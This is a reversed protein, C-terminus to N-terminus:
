HCKAVVKDGDTEIAPSVYPIGLNSGRLILLIGFALLTVPVLKRFRTRIANSMFRGLYPLGFMVPLTGIGFLVMYLAGHWHSGVVVAGAAAMYVLGCPLLGNFLGIVFVSGFTGKAFQKQFLGKMKVLAGFLPKQIIDMKKVWWPVLVALVILSGLIISFYQQFGMLNITSGLLGFVAGIVGYILIRGANYTLVGLIRKGESTGVSPVALAIPGCMGLCHLNGVLGMLIASWMLIM